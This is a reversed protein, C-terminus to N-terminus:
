PRRLRSMGLLLLKMKLSGSRSPESLMERAWDRELEEEFRPGLEFALDVFTEVDREAKIGTALSRDVARQVRARLEAEGLEAALLPDRAAIRATMARVFRRLRDAVMADVQAQRIILM